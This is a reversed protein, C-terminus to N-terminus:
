QGPSPRKRVLNVNIQDTVKVEEEGKLLTRGKWSIDIKAMDSLDITELDLSREIGDLYYKVPTGAYEEKKNAIMLLAAERVDEQAAKGEQIRFGVSGSWPTGETKKLETIYAKRIREAEQIEPRMNRLAEKSGDIGATHLTLDDYYELIKDLKEVGLTSFTGTGDQRLGMFLPLFTDAPQDDRLTSNSSGSANKLDLTAVINTLEGRDNYDLEEVGFVAEIDKLAALEDQLDALEEQTATQGILVIHMGKTVPPLGQGFLQVIGFIQLVLVGIKWFPVGPKKTTNMMHIRKKIFSHNYNTAMALARGGLSVSLLSYQYTRQDTGQRLMTDDVLYELNNRVLSRYLPVLPNFWCLIRLWEGLMIDWSHGQRVHVLEHELIQHYDTYAIEKQPLVVWRFFSFPEKVGESRLLRYGRSPLRRARRLTRGLQWWQRLHQLLYVLVGGLYIALLVQALTIRTLWAPMVPTEKVTPAVVAPQKKAAAEGEAYTRAFPYATFPIQEEVRQTVTETLTDVPRPIQPLLVALVPILLLLFRNVRFAHGDRLLLWYIGVLLAFVLNFSLILYLM